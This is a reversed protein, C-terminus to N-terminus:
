HATLSPKPPKTGDNDAAGVKQRGLWAIRAAGVLDVGTRGCGRNVDSGVDVIVRATVGRAGRRHSARCLKGLADVIKAGDRSVLAPACKREDM